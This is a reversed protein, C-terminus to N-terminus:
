FIADKLNLGKAKHMYADELITEKLSVGELNAEFLICNEMNARDLSYGRFDRRELNTYSLDAQKGNDDGQLWLQHLKLIEDLEDQKM